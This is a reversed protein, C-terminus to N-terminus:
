AYPIFPFQRPLTFSTSLVPFQAYGGTRLVKRMETVLTIVNTRSAPVNKLSKLMASTMAGTFMGASQDYADASTQNDRCGSIMVVKNALSNTSTITDITGVYTHQLDLMSGSHCADCLFCVTTCAPFQALRDRLIDDTIVGNSGFDSPCIGEDKGDTEDGNADAVQTGHGSYSIFVYPVKEVACTQALNTLAEYIQRGTAECLLQISASPVAGSSTLLTSLNRADNICGQLASSTGTYNIGICLAKATPSM